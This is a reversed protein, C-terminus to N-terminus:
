SQRSHRRCRNEDLGALKEEILTKTQGLDGPFDGPVNVSVVVKGGDVSLDNQTILGLTVLDSHLGPISITSIRALIVKKM